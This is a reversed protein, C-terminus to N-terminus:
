KKTDWSDLGKKCILSLAFICCDPVNTMSYVFVMKSKRRTMLFEKALVERGLFFGAIELCFHSFSPFLWESAVLRPNNRQFNRKFNGSKEDSFANLKEGNQQWIWKLDTPPLHKFALWRYMVSPKMFPQASYLSETDSATKSVM